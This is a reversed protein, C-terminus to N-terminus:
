FHSITSRSESDVVGAAPGHLGFKIFGRLPPLSGPLLYSCQSFHGAAGSMIEPVDQRHDFGVEVQRLPILAVQPLKAEAEDGRMLAPELPSRPEEREDLLLLENADGAFDPDASGEVTQERSEFM